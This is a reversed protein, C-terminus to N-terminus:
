FLIIESPHYEDFSGLRITKLRDVRKKKERERMDAWYLSFVCSIGRSKIPKMGLQSFFGWSFVASSFFMWQVNSMILHSRWRLLMRIIHFRWKLKLISMEANLTIHPCHVSVFGGSYYEFDHWEIAFCCMEIHFQAIVYLPFAFSSSRFLLRSVLFVFCGPVDNLARIFHSHEHDRNQFWKLLCCPIQQM